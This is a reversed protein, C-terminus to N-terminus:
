RLSKGSIYLEGIRYYTDATQTYNVSARLNLYELGDFFLNHHTDQASVFNIDSRNMVQVGDIWATFRGDAAGIASSMVFLSEVKHWTGGTLHGGWTDYNINGPPGNSTDGIFAWHYRNDPNRSTWGNNSSTNGTKTYFLKMGDRNGDLGWNGSFYLYQRVYLTKAPFGGFVSWHWVSMSGPTGASDGRTGQITLVQGASVTVSTGITVSNSTAASIVYNTAGITLQRNLYAGTPKGLTNLPIVTGTYNGSVTVQEPGYWKKEIVYGSGKPNSPDAVVATRADGYGGGGNWPNTTTWNTPTKSSGDLDAFTTMGVPENTSGSPPPPNPPTVLVSRARISDVENSSFSASKHLATPPHKVHIKRPM